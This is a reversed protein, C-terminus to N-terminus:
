CEHWFAPFVSLPLPPWPDLMMSFGPGKDQLALICPNKDEKLIVGDAYDAALADPVELLWGEDKLMTRVYPLTGETRHLPLGAALTQQVFEHEM